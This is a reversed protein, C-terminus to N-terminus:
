HPGKGLTECARLDTGGTPSWTTMCVLMYLINSMFGYSILFCSAWNCRHPLVGLNIMPHTNEELVIPLSFSRWVFSFVSSLHSFPDNWYLELYWIVMWRSYFKGHKIVASASYRRIYRSVLMITTPLPVSFSFPLLPVQYMKFWKLISCTIKIPSEWCPVTKCSLLSCAIDLFLKSCWLEPHILYFGYLGSVIKCYLYALVECCFIEQGWIDTIRVSFVM